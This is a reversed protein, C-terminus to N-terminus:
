SALSHVNTEYNRLDENREGKNLLSVQADQLGNEKIFDQVNTVDKVLQKIVGTENDIVLVGNQIVELEKLSVSHVLTGYYITFTTSAAM